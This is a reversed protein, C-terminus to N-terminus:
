LVRLVVPSVLRHCWGDNLDFLQVLRCVRTEWGVDELCQCCHHHASRAMM